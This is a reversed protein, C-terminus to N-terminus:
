MFLKVLEVTCNIHLKGMVRARHNEVTRPSIALESAIKQSSKGDLVLKIIQQEKPTLMAMRADIVSRAVQENKIDRSRALALQVKHVLDNESFPKELFDFAGKKLLEVAVKVEAYGSIFIIPLNLGKELLRNQVEIGGINPMRLDCLLCEASTSITYAELFSAASTFSLIKADISLQLLEKVSWLFSENDDLIYVVSHNDALSKMSSEIKWCYIERLFNDHHVIMKSTEDSM